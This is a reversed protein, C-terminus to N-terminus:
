NLAQSFRWNVPRPPDTHTEAFRVSKWKNESSEMPQVASSLTDCCARGHISIWITVSVVRHCNNAWIDWDYKRCAAFIPLFLLFNHFCLPWRFVSCKSWTFPSFLLKAPRTHALHNMLWTLPPTRTHPSQPSRIHTLSHTHTQGPLFTSLEYNKNASRAFLAM